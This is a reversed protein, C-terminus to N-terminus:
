DLPHNGDEPVHDHFALVSRHADDDFVLQLVGFSQVARRWRSRGSSTVFHFALDEIRLNDCLWCFVGCVGVGVRPTLLSPGAPIVSCM